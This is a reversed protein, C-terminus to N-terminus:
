PTTYGPTSGSHYLVLRPDSGEGVIPMKPIFVRNYGVFGLAGSLITRVWGMGYSQKPVAPTTTSVHKAFLTSVQKLLSGPTSTSNTRSEHSAANLLFKLWTLPDEVCSRMGVASTLANGDAFESQPIPFASGNDLTMYPRAVNDDM